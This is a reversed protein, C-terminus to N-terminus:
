KYFMCSSFIIPCQYEQLFLQIVLVIIREQIYDLNNGDTAGVSTSIPVINVRKKKYISIKIMQGIHIWNKYFKSLVTRFGCAIKSRHFYIEVNENM